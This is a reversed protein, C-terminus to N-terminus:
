VGKGAGWGTERVAGRVVGRGRLSDAVELSQSM